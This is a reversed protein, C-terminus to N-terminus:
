VDLNKAEKIVYKSTKRREYEYRIFSTLVYVFASAMFVAVGIDIGTGSLLLLCFLCIHLFINVYQSIKALLKKGLASAIHLACIVGGLISMIIILTSEPLNLLFQM